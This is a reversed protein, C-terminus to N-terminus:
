WATVKESLPPCLQFEEADRLDTVMLLWVSFWKSFVNFNMVAILEVLFDGNIVMHSFSDLSRLEGSCWSRCSRLREEIKVHCFNALAALFTGNILLVAPPANQLWSRQRKALMCPNICGQSSHPPSRHQRMKQLVPACNTRICSCKHCACLLWPEAQEVPVQEKCLHKPHIYLSAEDKGDQISSSSFQPSDNTSRSKLFTRKLTLRQNDRGNFVNGSLDPSAM